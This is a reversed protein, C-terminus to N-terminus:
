SQTIQFNSLTIGERDSKQLLEEMTKELVPHRFGPAVDCLPVLVFAREHLRPHPVILYETHLVREAYFLLDLDITRPGNAVSRVRALRSEIEQLAALLELPEMESQVAIVANLFDDQEVLGWPPTRYVRSIATVEMRNKLDHVAAALNKEPEINSGLALHAVAM